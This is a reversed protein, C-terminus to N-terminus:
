ATTEECYLTMERNAEDVNQVGKVFLERTGYTIRTDVTIGSHYRGTVRFATSRTDDTLGPELPSMSCWWGEPSLPEFYGDTDGSTEPSRSLTVYKTHRGPRM